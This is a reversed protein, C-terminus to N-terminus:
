LSRRLQATSDKILIETLRPCTTSLDEVHALIWEHLCKRSPAAEAVDELAQMLDVILQETEYPKRQGAVGDHWNAVRRRLRSLDISDM